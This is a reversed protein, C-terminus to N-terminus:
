ARFGPALGEEKARQGKSGWSGLTDAYFGSQHVLLLISKYIGRQGWSSPTQMFYVNDRQREVEKAPVALQWWVFVRVRHSEIEFNQHLQPKSKFIFYQAIHKVSVSFEKYQGFQELTKKDLITKRFKPYIQIKM